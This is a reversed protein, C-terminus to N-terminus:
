GAAIEKFVDAGLVLLIANVQSFSAERQLVRGSLPRPTYFEKALYRADEFPLGRVAVEKASGLDPNGAQKIIHQSVVEPDYERWDGRTGDSADENLGWEISFHHGPPPTKFGNYYVRAHYGM